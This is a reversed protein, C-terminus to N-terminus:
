QSSVRAIDEAIVQWAHQYAEDTGVPTIRVGYKLGDGRPSVFCYVVHPDEQMLTLKIAHLDSLHDLDAHVVGSHQQLHHKARTPAFTGAFTLAPLHRKAQAYAEEGRAQLLQRLRAIQWAYVGECIADLAEGLPMTTSPKTKTSATTVSYRSM